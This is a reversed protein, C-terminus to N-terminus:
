SDEQRIRRKVALGNPRDLLLCSDFCKNVNAWLNERGMLLSLAEAMRWVPNSLGDLDDLIASVEPAEEKLKEALSSAKQELIGLALASQDHRSHLVSGLLNLWETAFPRKSVDQRKIKPDNRAAYDLLRLCMLVVPFRN